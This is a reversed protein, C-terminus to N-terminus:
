LLGYRKRLTAINADTGYLRVHTGNEWGSKSAIKILPDYKKALYACEKRRLELREATSGFGGATYRKFYPVIWNLVLVRKHRVLNEATWCVDDILQARTDFCYHSKKVLWFRGDALGRTSFKKRLNLPNDHLGFGILHVNNAEALEILKPFLAFMEALNLVKHKNLRFLNQNEFTIPLTNTKSFIWETPLSAIKEFDDCMFVAWEGTDMMELASNRQYALGKGNGTVVGKGRITNHKRFKDMDADNHVLAIHDIGNEALAISTTASDYRNYYFTFVKM